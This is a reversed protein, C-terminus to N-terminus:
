RKKEGGASRTMSQVQRGEGTVLQRVHKALKKREANTLPRPRPPVDLRAPSENETTDSSGNTLARPRDPMDCCPAQPQVLPQAVASDHQVQQHGAWPQVPVMTAFAVASMPVMQAVCVPYVVMPAPASCDNGTNTDQVNSMGTQHCYVVNWVM